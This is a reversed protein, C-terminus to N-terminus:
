FSAFTAIDKKSGRYAFFGLGLLGSLIMIWTSPLPTSSITAELGTSLNCYNCGGSSGTQALFDVLEGAVLTETLSFTYTQLYTSITQPGFITGSVSDTILVPHVACGGSCNTQTDAGFFEGTITYTGASPATFRVDVTQSEPDITLFTSGFTVTNSIIAPGSTTRGVIVSNPLGQGNWWDEITGSTSTHSLLTNSYLYSWVGNPNTSLSFDGAASYTAAGAQSAALAASVLISASILYRLRVMM